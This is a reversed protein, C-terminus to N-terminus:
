WSGAGHPQVRDQAALRRRRWRLLRTAALFISLLMPGLIGGPASGLQCTCDSSGKASTRTDAGGSGGLASTTSVGGTGGTVTTQGANGSSGGTGAGSTGAIGGVGAISGSNGGAGAGGTRTGGSGTGNTIGGSGTGGTGGSTGGAGTMGGTGAGGAGGSIGGTRAGGTSSTAGGVGAGSTGGTSTGGTIGGSGSGGTGASGGAGGSNGGTAGYEFAGLDPALGSFPLGVSQGKDILDSGAVLRMFPVVPLSGDAQRPGDVGAIDVSDFDAASVTVSLNWSNSADDAGTENSLLTGAFALNNRLIGVVIDAGSTNMGLMNFDPHNNYSTNNYFYVDGPHHNAYLGSAKNLFSVCSQVTHKPPNSPFTSTDTGYGGAKIGNGNGASVATTTGPLYGHYWAWSNEITVVDFANILDFGDDSNWWARCGRFVNGKEGASIHCGFGDASQGAGNSTLPDYNHHSDCDLVLNNSGKQIFIGAGQIHHVNLLEFINNSGSVWVGWSEHNKDNRQTVGTVELGKMHIYSGTVNWGKVRCDDMLGSYDFVPVEGPYAWYHILNGSTGSKGLTMANSTATQSAPSGCGSSGTTIAYTGGRILVTDGATAATQARTVTAFPAAQTGANADKGDTAVYYTSAAQATFPLLFALVFSGTRPWVRADM